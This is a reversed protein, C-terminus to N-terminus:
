KYRERDMGDGFLWIRLGVKCVMQVTRRVTEGLAHVGFDLRTPFIVDNMVQEVTVFLAVDDKCLNKGKLKKVVSVANQARPRKRRIM